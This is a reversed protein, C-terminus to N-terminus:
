NLDLAKKFMKTFWEYTFTEKQLTTINPANYKLLSYRTTISVSRTDRTTLLIIPMTHSIKVVARTWASINLQDSFDEPAPLSIVSIQHGARCLADANTVLHRITYPKTKYGLATAVEGIIEQWHVDDEIVAITPAKETEDLPVLRTGVDKFRQPPMKRLRALKLELTQVAERETTLKNHIDLPVALPGHAAAQEELYHINQYHQELLAKIHKIEAKIDSM